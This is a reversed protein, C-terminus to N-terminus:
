QYLKGQAKDLDVKAILANYFSSFYNTQSEKLAAEANLIELNTGVGQKYKIKSVRVIEKALDMNKQNEQLSEWYNKLSISAQSVQMDISNELITFSNKVKQLNNEAQITKYKKSFGDFIPINVGLGLSGNSFWPKTILDGFKPRGTNFGYNGTLRVSPLYGAKQNKVELESLRQQTQLISYEIRNAYKFDSLENPQIESINIESLKDTLQIQEELKMGMQFKLLNFSLDQLREVNKTETKLNNLQVELRQVDLKEVFGQVNMAKTDRVLSDLRGINVNLLKIREDNVLIGYYAKKVGEAIQQKTQVVAKASLEKYVDAAKLGLTYSGDFLLQSLSVGANGSNAVGFKAAIVDGDKATPDFTKAPIFVRAIQYNNTYNVNGNVQPLGIAKIENVRADANLIDLNANKLSMNNKIGYEIAENITFTQQASLSKSLILLAFALIPKYKIKNM